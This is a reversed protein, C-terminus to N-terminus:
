LWNNMEKSEDTQLQLESYMSQIWKSRYQFRAFFSLKQCRYTGKDKKTAQMVDVQAPRECFTGYM